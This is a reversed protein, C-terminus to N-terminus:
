FSYDGKKAGIWQDSRNTISNSRNSCNSNSGNSRRM